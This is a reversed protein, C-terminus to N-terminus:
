LIYPLTSEGVRGGSYSREDLNEVSLDLREYNSMCLAELPELFGCSLMRWFSDLDESDM